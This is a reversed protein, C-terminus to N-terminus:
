DLSPHPGGTKVSCNHTTFGDIDGVETLHLPLDITVTTGKGLTSEIGITGGHGEVHMKAAALGFGGECDDGPTFHLDFASELAGPPIGKGNDAVKIRISGPTPAWSIEIRGRPGSDALAGIANALLSDMVGSIKQVRINAACEPGFGIIDIGSGKTRERWEQVKGHLFRSMDARIKELSGIDAFMLLKTSMSTLRELSTRIQSLHGQSVEDLCVGALPGIHGSMSELTNCFETAISSAATGVAALIKNQRGEEALRVREIAVACLGVITEFSGRDLPELKNRRGDLYVIGISKGKVLLPLCLIAALHLEMISQHMQLSEDSSVEPVWIPECTDFVSQVSTMSLRTGSAACADDPDTSYITAEMGRSVIIKLKGDDMPDPLM